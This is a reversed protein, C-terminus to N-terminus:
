SNTSVAQFEVTASWYITTTAQGTVQILVDNGSATITCTWGSVGSSKVTALAAVSGEIMANGGQRYALARRTFSHM